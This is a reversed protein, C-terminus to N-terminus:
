YVTHISMVHLSTISYSHHPHSSFLSFSLNVSSLCHDSCGFCTLLGLFIINNSYISLSGLFTQIIEPDVEKFVTNKSVPCLLLTSKWDTSSCKSSNWPVLEDHWHEPDTSFTTYWIYTTFCSTLIHRTSCKGM